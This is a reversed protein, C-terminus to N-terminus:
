LSWINEYETDEEYDSKENESDDSHIKENTQNNQTKTKKLKKPSSKQLKNMYKQAICNNTLHAFKTKNLPDYDLM